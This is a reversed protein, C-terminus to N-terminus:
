GLAFGSVWYAATGIIFVMLTMAFTHSSNNAHSFGSELMAFGLQMFYVLAGAILTWVSNLSYQNHLVRDYLDAITLKSPVDSSPSGDANRTGSPTAWVGYNSGTPDPSELGSFAKPLQVQPAKPAIDSVGESKVAASLNAVIPQLQIAHGTVQFYAPTRTFNM